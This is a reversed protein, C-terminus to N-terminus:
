ELREKLLNEIVTALAPNLSPDEPLIRLAQAFAARADDKRGAENLAEGLGFYARSRDPHVQVNHEHVRLGDDPSEDFLANGLRRLTRETDRYANRENARYRDYFDLAAEVGHERAERQLVEGLPEEPQYELAQPLVPDRRAFFEASTMDIAVDPPIWPDVTEYGATQFLAAAYGVRVGSNPLEFFVIEGYQNPSSGTPLGMYVPELWRGLEVAFVTAASITTPGTLVILKGPADFGTRILARVLPITLRWGGGTNRRLDIVVRQVDSEVLMEEFRDVFGAFPDDADNQVSNFQLYAAHHAPLYEFWYAKEPDKWFLNEISDGIFVPDPMWEVATVPELRVSEHAGGREIELAAPGVAGIVGVAHLVEPIAMRFPVLYRLTMANDRNVIPEVRRWVSDAPVSEIGVLRSGILGVHASDARTIFVGDKFREFQVPYRQFAFPEEDPLSVYSHADGILAVLRSMEVIIEHDALDPIRRELDAAASEFTERDVHHFADAHRDVVERTLYALDARWEAPTPAAQAASAAVVIALIPLIASSAREHM